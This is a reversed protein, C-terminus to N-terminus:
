IDCKTSLLGKNKPKYSDALNYRVKGMDNNVTRRKRNRGTEKEKINELKM